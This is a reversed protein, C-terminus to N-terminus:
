DAAKRYGEQGYNHLINGCADVEVVESGKPAKDLSLAAQGPSPYAWGDVPKGDKFVRFFRTGLM